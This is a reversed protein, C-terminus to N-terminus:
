KISKKKPKLTAIKTQSGKTNIKYQNLIENIEDKKKANITNRNNTNQLPDEQIEKEYNKNSDINIMKNYFPNTLSNRSTNSAQNLSNKHNNYNTNQINTTQDNEEDKINDYEKNMKSYPNNKYRGSEKFKQFEYFDLNKMNINNMMNNTSENSNNKIFNFDNNLIKNETNNIIEKQKAAIEPSYIRSFENSSVKELHKKKVYIDNAVAVDNPTIVEDLDEISQNYNEEYNYEDNNKSKNIKKNNENIKSKENQNEFKFKILKKSNFDSGNLNDNKSFKVTDNLADNNYEINKNKNQFYNEIYNKIDDSKQKNLNDPIIERNFNISDRKSNESNNFNQNDGNFNKNAIQFNEPNKNGYVNNNLLNKSIIQNMCNINKNITTIGKTEFSYFDASDEINEKIKYDPQCIRNKLDINDQNSGELFKINKNIGENLNKKITENLTKHKYELDMNSNNNINSKPLNKIKLTNNIQEKTSEIKRPTNENDISENFCNENKYELGNIEDNRLNSKPHIPLNNKKEIVQKNENKINELQKIIPYKLIEYKSKIVEIFESFDIKLNNNRDYFEYEYELFKLLLSKKKLLFYLYFKPFKSRSILHNIEVENKNKNSNEIKHKNINNNFKNESPMFSLININPINIEIEFSKKKFFEFINHIRYDCNTENLVNKDIKNIEIRLHKMYNEIENRNVNIFLQKFNDTNIKSLKEKSLDSNFLKSDNELKELIKHRLDILDKELSLNHIFNSNQIKRLNLKKISILEEMTEKIEKISNNSINLIFDGTLLSIKDSFLSDNQNSKAKANDSKENSNKKQYSFEICIDKINNTNPNKNNQRNEIKAIEFFELKSIENQKESLPSINLVNNEASKFLEQFNNSKIFHLDESQIIEINESNLNIEENNFQNSGNRIKLNITNKNVTGRIPNSDQIDTNSLSIKDNPTLFINNHINQQNFNNYNKNIFQANENRHKQQNSVVLKIVNASLSNNNNESNRHGNLDLNNKNLGNNSHKGDSTLIHNKNNQIGNKTYIGNEEYTYTKGSNNIKNPMTQTEKEKELLIDIINGNRQNGFNNKEKQFVNINNKTNIEIFSEEIRNRNSSILSNTGGINELVEDLVMFKKKNKLNDINEYTNRNGEYNNNSYELKNYKNNLIESQKVNNIVNNISNSNSPRMTLKVNPISNNVTNLSSKSNSSSIQNFKPIDSNNSNNIKINQINLNTNNNISSKYIVATSGIISKLEKNKTNIKEEFNKLIQIKNKGADVKLNKLNFTLNMEDKTLFLKKDISNLTVIVSNENKNKILIEELDCANSIEKDFNNFAKSIKIIISKILIDSSVLINIEQPNLEKKLNNEINEPSMNENNSIGQKNSSEKNLIDLNQLINNEDISSNCCINYYRSFEDQLLNQDLKGYIAKKFRTFWIMYHLWDRAVLKRKKNFLGTKDENIMKEVLPDKINYPKRMPKFEQITDIVSLARMTQLINKLYNLIFDNIELKIDSTALQFYFKYNKERTKSFFDINGKDTSSIGFNGMFNLNDIIKNCQFYHNKHLNKEQTTQSNKNVTINHFNNIIKNFEVLKNKLFEYYKENVEFNSDLHSIFTKIPIYIETNTQYYINFNDAKFNNKKVNGDTSLNLEFDQITFGVAIKNKVEKFNEIKENLGPKLFMHCHLDDEFRIHINKIKLNILFSKQYYFRIGINLIHNIIESIKSKDKFFEIIKAKSKLISGDYINVKKLFVDHFNNDIPDYIEKLHFDNEKIFSNVNRLIWKASPCLIIDINDITIELPKEGIFNMLSCCVQIKQISGSKLWFPTDTLDLKKNVKDIRINLKELVITGNIVGVNLQEKSFGWLYENIYKEIYPYLQNKIM